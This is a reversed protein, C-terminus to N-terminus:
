ALARGGKELATDQVYGQNWNSCFQKAFLERELCSDLILAEVPLKALEVLPLPAVQDVIKGKGVLAILGRILREVMQAVKLTALMLSPPSLATSILGTADMM